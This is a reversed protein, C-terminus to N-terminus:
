GKANNDCPGCLGVTAGPPGHHGDRDIFRFALPATTSGCSDCPPYAAPSHGAVERRTRLDVVRGPEDTM